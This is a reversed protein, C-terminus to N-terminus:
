FIWALQHRSYKSLNRSDISFWLLLHFKFRLEFACVVSSVFFFCPQFNSGALCARSVVLPCWVGGFPVLCQRAPCQTARVSRLYLARVSPFGCSRLSFGCSRLSVAVARCQTARVSRLHLSSCGATPRSAAPWISRQWDSVSLSCAGFSTSVPLLGVLPHGGPRAGARAQHARHQHETARRGVRLLRVPFATGRSPV